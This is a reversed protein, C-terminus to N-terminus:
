LGLHKQYTLFVLELVEEGDTDTTAKAHSMDKYDQLHVKKSHLQHAEGM